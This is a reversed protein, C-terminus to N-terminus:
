NIHMFHVSPCVSLCSLCVSLCVSVCVCVCICVFVCYGTEDDNFKYLQDGSTANYLRKVDRARSPRGGIKCVNSFVVKGYEDFVKHSDNVSQCGVVFLWSGSYRVLNDNQVYGNSLKWPPRQILWSTTYM